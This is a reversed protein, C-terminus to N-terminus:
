RNNQSNHYFDFPFLFCLCPFLVCTDYFAIPSRAPLPCLLFEVCAIFVFVLFRLYSLAWIDLWPVGSFNSDDCHQYLLLDPDTFLGYGGWFVSL